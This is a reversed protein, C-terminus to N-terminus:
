FFLRQRNNFVQLHQLRTPVRTQLIFYGDFPDTTSFVKTLSVLLKLFFGVDHVRSDEYVDASSRDEFTTAAFFPADFLEINSSNAGSQAARSLSARSPLNHIHINQHDLVVLLKAGQQAVLHRPFAIIRTSM